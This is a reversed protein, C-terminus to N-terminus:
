WSLIQKKVVGNNDLRLLILPTKRIQYDLVVLLGLGFVPMLLIFLIWNFTKPKRMKVVKDTRELITWGNKELRIIHKELANL